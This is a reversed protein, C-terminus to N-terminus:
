VEAELRPGAKHGPKQPWVAGPLRGGQAGHKSQHMRIRAGRGHELMGEALEVAGALTDSCHELGGMDM